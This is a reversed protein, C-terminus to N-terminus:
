TKPNLVLCTMTSSIGDIERLRAVADNMESQDKVNVILYFDHPGTILHAEKVGKVKRMTEMLVDIGAKKESSKVEGLILAQRVM